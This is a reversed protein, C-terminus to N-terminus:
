KKVVKTSIVIKNELECFLTYIGPSLNSLNIQMYGDLQNFPVEIKQGIISLITIKKCLIKDMSILVFDDVPNPHILLELLKENPITLQNCDLQNSNEESLLGNNISWTKWTGGVGIEWNNLDFTSSGLSNGKINYVKLAKGEKNWTLPTESICLEPYNSEIECNVQVFYANDDYSPFDGFVRAIGNEDICVSTYEDCAIAKPSISNDQLIRAMFVSLRGKRDPNDFHTDTIVAHMFPNQLFPSGDVTVNLHYPNSLATASTITGQQASFYYEGQIAMGASTGGIVCKRESIATNILAEISTNRWNSIYTWQDGGAFWIAEAQQIKQHIYPEDSALANHFVITEVSNVQVGLNSYFYDNYGDSGSTRLVLIDGGNARELFWKMANDNETAGGMLCLGGFPVGPYDIHSGTHYSTYLQSWVFFPTFFLLFFLFRMYIM